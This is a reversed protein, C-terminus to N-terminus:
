KKYFLIIFLLYYFSIGINNTKLIEIDNCYNVDFRKYNWKKYNSIFTYYLKYNNMSKCDHYISKIEGNKEYCNRCIIDVKENIGIINEYTQSFM